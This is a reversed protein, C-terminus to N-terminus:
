YSGGQLGPAGMGAQKFPADLQGRCRHHRANLRLQSVAVAPSPPACLTPCLEDGARRGAARPNGPRSRALRQLHWQRLIGRERQVRGRHGAPQRRRAIQPSQPPWLALRGACRQVLPVRRRNRDLSGLLQFAPGALRLRRDLGAGARRAAPSGRAGGPLPEGASGAHLHVDRLLGVPAGRCHRGADGGAGGRWHAAVPLRLGRATTPAYKTGPSQIEANCSRPPSIEYTRVTAKQRDPSSLGIFVDADGM